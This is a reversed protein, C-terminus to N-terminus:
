SPQLDNYVFAIERALEVDVSNGADPRCCMQMAVVAM